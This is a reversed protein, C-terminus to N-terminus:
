WMLPVFNFNESKSSGRDLDKSNLIYGMSDAASDESPLINSIFTSPRM